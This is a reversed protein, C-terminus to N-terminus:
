NTGSVVGSPPADSERPKGTVLYIDSLGNGRPRIIATSRRHEANQSQAGSVRESWDIRFEADSQRFNPEADTIEAKKWHFAAIEEPPVPSILHVWRMSCGRGNAGAAELANSMPLPQLNDPLEAVWRMSYNLNSGCDDALQLVKATGAATLLAMDPVRDGMQGDPLIDADLSEGIIRSAAERARAIAAHSGDIAPITHDTGGSLAANAENYAALDPDIMIQQNLAQTIMADPRQEVPADAESAGCGPLLLTVALAAIVPCGIKIPLRAMGACYAAITFMLNAVAQHVSLFM